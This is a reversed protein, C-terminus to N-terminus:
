CFRLPLSFAACLDEKYPIIPHASCGDGNVHNGDDCGETVDLTGDGCIFGGLNVNGIKDPTRDPSGGVDDSNGYSLFGFLHGWCRVYGSKLVACTHFVNASIQAVPGGIPVPGVEAVAEDDGINEESGYGL